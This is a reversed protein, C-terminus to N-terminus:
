LVKLRCRAGLRIVDGTHIETDKEIINENVFTHNTSNNDCIMIVGDGRRWLCCHYKSVDSLTTVCCYNAADTLQIRGLVVRDAINVNFIANDAIRLLSLTCMNNAPNVGAIEGDITLLITGKIKDALQLQNHSSSIMGNNVDVGGNFGVDTKRYKPISASTRVIILVIVLVVLVAVLAALAVILIITSNM